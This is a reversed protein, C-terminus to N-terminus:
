LVLKDAPDIELRYTLAGNVPMGLSILVPRVTRLVVSQEDDFALKGGRAFWRGIRQTV